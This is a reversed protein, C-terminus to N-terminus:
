GSAAPASAALLIALEAASPRKPPQKALARMVAEELSLPVEPNLARLPPPLDGLHKLPLPMPDADAAEFPLPAPHMQFLSVPLGSSYAKTASSVSVSRASTMHTPT